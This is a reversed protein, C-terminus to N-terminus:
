RVGARRLERWDQSYSGALKVVELSLGAASAVSVIGESNNGRLLLRHVEALAAAFGCVWADNPHQLSKKNLRPKKRKVVNLKCRIVDDLRYRHTTVTNFGEMINAAAMVGQKFEKTM